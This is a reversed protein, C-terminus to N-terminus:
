KERGRIAQVIMIAGCMIFFGILFIGGVMGLIDLFEGM